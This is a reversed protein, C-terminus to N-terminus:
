LKELTLTVIKESETIPSVGTSMQEFLPLVRALHEDKIAEPLAFSHTLIGAGANMTPVGNENSFSNISGGVDFFGVSASIAYHYAIDGIHIEDKSLSCAVPGETGQVSFNLVEGEALNITSKLVTSRVETFLSKLFDQSITMILFFHYFM